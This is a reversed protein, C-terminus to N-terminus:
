AHTIPETDKDCQLYCEACTHHSDKDAKRYAEMAKEFQKKAFLKDGEAILQTVSADDNKDAEVRSAPAILFVFVLLISLLFLKRM